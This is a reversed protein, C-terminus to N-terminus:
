RGETPKTAPLTPPPVGDDEAQSKSTGTFFFQTLAIADGLAECLHRALADAVEKELIPYPATCIWHIAQGKEHTLSVMVGTGKREQIAKLLRKLAINEARLEEVVHEPTVKQESM